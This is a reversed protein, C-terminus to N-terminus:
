SYNTAIIEGVQVRSKSNASISRQVKIKEIKVVSGYIEKTLRTDSNSLMVRVGKKTLGKIVGALAFHHIVGFDNKSYKSFSSSANLPIYPPDLYVFDGSDATELATVFDLNTITAGQLKSSCAVINERSYILPNSLKGWPVNFEGQSNVRWLGNFCTRNLYIFRAARAVLTKPNSSKVLEFEERSKNKALKSLTIMLQEPFDRIALYSLILDQNIDNLFLHKSKTWFQSNANLIAFSFAGGGLFPEFVRTSGSSFDHPMKALILPLVRRKGGAWRLFPQLKEQSEGFLSDQLGKSHAM